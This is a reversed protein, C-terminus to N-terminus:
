LLGDRRDAGHRLYWFKALAVFNHLTDEFCYYGHEAILNQSALIERTQTQEKSCRRAENLM